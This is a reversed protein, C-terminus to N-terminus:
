RVLYLAKFLIVCFIKKKKMPSVRLRVRVKNSYINGTTPKVLPVKRGSHKLVVKPCFTPLKEPTAPRPRQKASASASSRGDRTLKEALLFSFLIQVDSM